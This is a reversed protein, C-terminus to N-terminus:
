LGDNLSQAQFEFVIDVNVKCVLNVSTLLDYMHDLNQRRRRNTGIISLVTVENVKTQSLGKVSNKKKRHKRICIKIQSRYTSPDEVKPAKRQRILKRQQKPRDKTSKIM